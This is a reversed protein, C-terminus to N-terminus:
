PEGWKKGATLRKHTPHRSLKDVDRQYLLAEATCQEWASCICGLCRPHTGDPGGIGAAFLRICIREDLPVPPIENM